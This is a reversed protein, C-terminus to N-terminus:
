KKDIIKEIQSMFLSFKDVVEKYDKNSDKIDNRHEEMVKMIAEDKEKVTTRHSVFLYAIVSALSGCAVYLLTSVTNPAEQLILIIFLIHSM